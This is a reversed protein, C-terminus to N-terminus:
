ILALGVSVVLNASSSARVYSSVGYGLGSGLGSGLGFGVGVM